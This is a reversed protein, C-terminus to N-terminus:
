IVRIAGATLLLTAFYQIVTTVFWLVYHQQPGGSFQLYVTLLVPVFLATVGLRVFLGFHRRYITLAGDLIEGLEMPRLDLMHGRAGSPPQRYSSSTLVVARPGAGSSRRSRWPISVGSCTSTWRSNAPTPERAAANTSSVTSSKM